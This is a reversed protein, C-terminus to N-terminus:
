PLPPIEQAVPNWHDDGNLFVAPDYQRAQEPTLFHTHPDRLAQQAAPGTSGLESYTATEISYTKGPLWERWGAADIHSGM